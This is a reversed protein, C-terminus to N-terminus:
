CARENVGKWDWGCRKSFVGWLRHGFAGTRQPCVLAGPMPTVVRDYGLTHGLLLSIKRSPPVHWTECHCLSKVSHETSLSSAAEDGAAPFSQGERTWFFLAPLCLAHSVPSSEPLWSPQSLSLYVKASAQIVPSNLALLTFSLHDLAIGTLALLM